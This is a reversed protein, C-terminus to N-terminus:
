TPRRWAPRPFARWRAAIPRGAAGARLERLLHELGNGGPWGPLLIENVLSTKGHGPIGTVVVLDGRRALYHKDLGVVGIEVAPEIDAPPLDGLRYVAGGDSVV